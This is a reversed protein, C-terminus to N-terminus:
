GRGSAVTDCASVFSEIAVLTPLDDLLPAHGQDAVELTILRPQRAKMAVVTAASLIDSNAGRIVMLPVDRLADFQAWMDPLPKSEDVGALAEALAPDYVPVLAGDQERWTRQAFALWQEESLHPFDPNFRRLMAAGEAFSSPPSMRGVYSKIRMVGRIDVAPGIDNFIAGAVLAPQTAGLLLTLIGGRSTGLFVAKGVSFVGLTLLLDALEVPVTYNAPNPDHASLGRGRYDIVLVRRHRSFREAVADFDATTRTLGPLCVLPLTPGPTGYERVHLRLGDAANIFHSTGIM